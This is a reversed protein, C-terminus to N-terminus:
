LSCSQCCPLLYRRDPTIWSTRASVLGEGTQLFQPPPSVTGIGNVSGLVGVECSRRLLIRVQICPRIGGWNALLSPLPTGSSGGPSLRSLYIVIGRSVNMDKVPVSNPKYVGLTGRLRSKTKNREKKKLGATSIKKRKM